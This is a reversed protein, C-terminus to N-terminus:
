DKCIYAGTSCLEIYTPGGIKIEKGTLPNIVHNETKSPLLAVPIKPSVTPRSLAANSQSQIKQKHTINKIPLSTLTTLLKSKNDMKFLDLVQKYTVTEERIKKNNKYAIAVFKYKNIDNEPTISEGVILINDKDILKGYEFSIHGNKRCIKRHENFNFNIDGNNINLKGVDFSLCQNDHSM